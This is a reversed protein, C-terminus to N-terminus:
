FEFLSQTKVVACDEPFTHYAHVLLSQPGVDTRILSLPGPNLRSGVPFQYSIDARKCDEVLEEHFSRFVETDLRELQFSTHFQVGNEFRHSQDRCGRLKHELVRKRTPLLTSSSTTLETITEDRYKVSLTHGAECIRLCARFGDREVVSEAFMEFLEPHVSRGYLHFVIETVKPRAYGVSM